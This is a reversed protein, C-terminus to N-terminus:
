HTRRNAVPLLLKNGYIIDFEEPYFRDCGSGHHLTIEGVYVKNNSEYFDVRVMPFDEAIRSSLECMKDFLKPREISPSADYKEFLQKNAGHVWIFHLRNWQKDYVQRVNIGLRDVSCYIFELEGNLYLFKYDNPIGGNGNSLLKEVVIYPNRKMYQHELTLFAHMNSTYIQKKFFEKLYENSYENKKRIILNQGSGNSVKIICPFERISENTLKNPDQTYFLLDPAYDYGVKNILYQHLYYKDCAQTFFPEIYYLKLWTIKENLSKPNALDPRIGINKKYKREAWKREGLLKVYGIKMGNMIHTKIDM